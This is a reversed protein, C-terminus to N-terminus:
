APLKRSLTTALLATTAIGLLLAAAGGLVLWM